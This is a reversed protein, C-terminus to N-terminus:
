MQLCHMCYDQSVLCIAPDFMINPNIPVTTPGESNGKEWIASKNCIFTMVTKLTCTKNESDTYNQGDGSSVHFGQGVVEGIVFYFNCYHFVFRDEYLGYFNDIFSFYNNVQM